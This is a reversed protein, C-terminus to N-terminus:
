LKAAPNSTEEPSSGERQVSAVLSELINSWHRRILTHNEGSLFHARTAPVSLEAKLYEAASIPVDKDDGGHWIHYEVGISRGHPEPRLTFDWESAELVADSASGDLGQATATALDLLAIARREPDRM